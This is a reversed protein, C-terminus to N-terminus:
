AAFFVDKSYSGQVMPAIDDIGRHSFFIKRLWAIGIVCSVALCSTGNQRWTLGSADELGVDAPMSVSCSARVAGTLLGDVVYTLFLTVGKM